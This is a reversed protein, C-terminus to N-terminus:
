YPVNFLRIYIRSFFSLSKISVTHRGPFRHEGLCIAANIYAHYPLYFLNTQWCPDYIGGGKREASPASVQVHADLVTFKKSLHDGDSRVTQNDSRSENASGLGSVLTFCGSRRSIQLSKTGTWSRLSPPTKASNWDRHPIEFKSLTQLHEETQTFLSVTM